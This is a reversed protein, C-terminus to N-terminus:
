VSVIASEMFGQQHLYAVTDKETKTIAFPSGFFVLIVLIVAITLSLYGCVKSMM